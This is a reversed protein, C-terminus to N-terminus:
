VLKAAIRLVALADAVTIHGDSDADSIKISNPDELVLKAAIRLVALADAVTIEGDNDMDFKIFTSPIPKDIIPMAKSYTKIGESSTRESIWSLSGDTKCSIGAHITNDDDVTTSVENGLVIAQFYSTNIQRNQPAYEMDMKFNETYHNNGFAKNVDPTECSYTRNEIEYDTFKVYRFYGGGGNAAFQYDHLIEVVNSGNKSKYYHNQAGPEHGCLVLKVNPNTDVIYQQILDGYGDPKVMIDGSSYLYQHTLIVATRHSYKHLVTSVWKLSDTTTEYKLGLYVFIFDHGGITILDYHSTNGLYGGGWWPQYDYYQPGFYKDWWEYRTWDDYANGVDHNGPTVGNPVNNKDLKNHINRALIAQSEDNIDCWAMQDTVDGTNCVYAINNNQYESVFWDFQSEMYHTIEPRGIYYQTDSTWAITDSGNGYLFESVRAKIKGNSDAYVAPSVPVSFLNDKGSNDGHMLTDWEATNPNYVQLILSEGTVTKGKYNILIDENIGSADIEFAQYPIDTTNSMTTMYSDASTELTKEGEPDRQKMDNINSLNYLSDTPLLTATKVTMNSKSGIVEPIILENETEGCNVYYNYEDPDCTNYFPEVNDTIIEKSFVVADSDLISLTHRGDSLKTTDVTFDFETEGYANECKDTYSISVTNDICVSFDATSNASAAKFNVIGSYIGDNLDCSCNTKKKLLCLDSIYFKSNLAANGKGPIFTIKIANIQGLLDYITGSEWPTTLEFDDFMATVTNNEPTLEKSTFNFGIPYESYASENSIPGRCPAAFLDFVIKGNSPYDSIWLSIGAAGALSIDGFINGDKPFEHANLDFDEIKKDAATVSAVGFQEYESGYQDPAGYTLELSKESSESHVTKVTRIRYFNKRWISAAQITSLSEFGPLKITLYEDAAKVKILGSVCLASLAIALTLVCAIFRVTKEHFTKM